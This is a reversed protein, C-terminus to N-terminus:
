IFFFIVSCCKSKRLEKNEKELAELRKMVSADGAGGAPSQCHYFFFFLIFMNLKLHITHMLPELERQHMLHM